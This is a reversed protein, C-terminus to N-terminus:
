EKYKTTRNYIRINQRKIQKILVSFRQPSVNACLNKILVLIIPEIGRTEM